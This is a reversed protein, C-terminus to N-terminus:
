LGWLSLRRAQTVTRRHNPRRRASELAVVVREFVVLVAIGLQWRTQVSPALFGNASAAYAAQCRTVIASM